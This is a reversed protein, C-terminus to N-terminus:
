LIRKFHICTKSKYRKHNCYNKEKLLKNTISNLENMNKADLSTSDSDQASISNVTAFLLIASISFLMLLTKM